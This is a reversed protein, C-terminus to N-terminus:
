ITKQRLRNQNTKTQKSSKMQHTHTHTRAHTRAHTHTHTRKNRTTRQNRWSTPRCRAAAARSTTSASCTRTSCFRRPSRPASMPTRRTTRRRTRARTRCSARGGRARVPAEQLRATTRTRARIGAPDAEDVPEHHLVRLRNADEKSSRTPFRSETAWSSITASSSPRRFTSTSTRSATAARPANGPDRQAIRDALMKHAIQKPQKYDAKLSKTIVLKYLPCDGNILEAIKSNLFVIAEQIADNNARMLIDIIGGYVDKVVSANDRRKLVVGMEKRKGKDPDTEYLMGVYRKKSLLCFPMFTKEYELDHPEKLMKTVFAGARQGAEISIELAKRGVIPTVGDRETLGFSIFASDTNHVILSGIGAAFHHNETTLDYM